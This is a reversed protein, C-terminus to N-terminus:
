VGEINANGVNARFGMLEVFGLATLVRIGFSGLAWLGFGFAECGWVRFGISEKLPIRMSGKLPM